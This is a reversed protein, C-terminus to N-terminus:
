FPIDDETIFTIHPNRERFGKLSDGLRENWEPNASSTGVFYSLADHVREDDSGLRCRLGFSLTHGPPSNPNFIEGKFFELVYDRAM